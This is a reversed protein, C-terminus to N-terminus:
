HFVPGASPIDRIAWQVVADHEFGSIEEGKDPESAQTLRGEQDFEISAGATQVRVEAMDEDDVTVQLYRVKSDAFEPVAREGAAVHAAMESTFERIGGEQTLVFHRIQM